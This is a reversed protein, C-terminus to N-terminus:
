VFPEIWVKHPGEADFIFEKESYGIEVLGGPHDVWSTKSVSLSKVQLQKSYAPYLKFLM